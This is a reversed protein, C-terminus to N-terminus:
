ATRLYTCVLYSDVENKATGSTNNSTNGTIALSPITHTHTTANQPTATGVNLASVGGLLTSINGQTGLPTVSVTSGSTNATTVLSGASHSHNM